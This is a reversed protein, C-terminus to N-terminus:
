KFFIILFGSDHTTSFYGLISDKFEQVLVDDHNHNKMFEVFKETKNKDVFYGFDYDFWDLDRLLSDLDERTYDSSKIEYLSSTNKVINNIDKIYHDVIMGKQKNIIEFDRKIVPISKPVWVSSFFITANEFQKELIDFLEIMQFDYVDFVKFKGFAYKLEEVPYQFASYIDNMQRWDKDAYNNLSTLKIIEKEFEEMFTKNNILEQFKM